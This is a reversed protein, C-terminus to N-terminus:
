FAKGDSAANHNKRPIFMPVKKRYALYAEGNECVLKKEELLTGVIIYVTLVIKSVLAIDTINGFAWILLIAASYWPHRVYQLIGETKFGAANQIKGERMAQLQRTGLVYRLDYARCGGYFLAFATLYMAIKVLNWPWPWSFIMRGELRLQYILVPVLTLLSFLNYSLRYYAFKAGLLDKMKRTVGKSVLLSHLCCWLMWVFALVSITQMRTMM